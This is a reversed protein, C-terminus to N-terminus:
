ILGDDFFNRYVVFHKTEVLNTTLCCSIYILSLSFYIDRHTNCLYM